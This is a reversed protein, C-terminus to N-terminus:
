DLRLRMENTPQFGLSQYLPRGERSAHLSLIRFGEGRAWDIAAQMLRRALGRRRYAPECYVNIVWARRAQGDWPGGPWAAILVGCGAVIEGRDTVAFWGCYTGEALAATLYEVSDRRVSALVAPDHHGMAEFMASRHHLITDLDAPTAMRISIAEGEVDGM